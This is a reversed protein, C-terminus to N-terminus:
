GQSPFEADLAKEEPTEQYVRDAKKEHKSEKQQLVFSKPKKVFGINSVGVSKACFEPVQPGEKKLHPFFGKIEWSKKINEPNKAINPHWAIWGQSGKRPIWDIPLAKENAMWQALEPLDKKKAIIAQFGWFDGKGESQRVIDTQKGDTANHHDVVEGVQGFPDIQVFKWDGKYNQVFDEVQNRFDETLIADDELFLYHETKTTDQQEVLEEFMRKHSCWNSLVKGRITWIDSHKSGHTGTTEYDIGKNICDGVGNQMLCEEYNKTQTNCQMPWYVASFRHPKFDQYGLQKEMCEKRDNAHDLNVYWVEMKPHEKGDITDWDSNGIAHKKEVEEIEKKHIAESVKHKLAKRLSERKAADVKAKQAGEQKISEKLKRPKGTKTDVTLGQAAVLLLAAIAAVRM